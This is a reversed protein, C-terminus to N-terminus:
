PPLGPEIGPLTALSESVVMAKSYLCNILDGRGRRIKVDPSGLIALMRRLFTRILEQMLILGTALM